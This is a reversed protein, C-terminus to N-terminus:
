LELWVNDIQGVRDFTGLHVNHRHPHLFNSLLELKNNGDLARNLYRLPIKLKLDEVGEQNNGKWNLILDEKSLIFEPSWVKNFREIQEEESPFCGTLGFLGLLLPIALRFDYKRKSTKKM